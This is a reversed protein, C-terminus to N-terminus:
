FVLYNYWNPVTQHNNGGLKTEFQGHRRYGTAASATITGNVTLDNAGLLIRSDAGTFNIDNITASGTLTVTVNAPIIVNSTTAPLGCSWTSPSTWNGTIATITTPCSSVAVNDISIKPRSGTTGGIGNHCYFRLKVTSQNNLAAPLAVSISASSTVNNIAVFPLNTGTIETWATGDTSYYLKLSSVRNGTSNFITAADFAITNAIRGSFNLNLDCAVAAANDTTGTTLFVLKTSSAVDYGIATGTGITALTTTAITTKTAVPITGTALVALGNWNTSYGAWATFTESYNGSAMSFYTQGWALSPLLLLVFSLAKFTHSRTFKQYM